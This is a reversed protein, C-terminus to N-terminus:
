FRIVDQGNFICLTPLLVVYFIDFFVTTLHISTSHRLVRNDPVFHNKGLKVCSGVSPFFHMVQEVAMDHLCCHGALLWPPKRCVQVCCLHLHLWHRRRGLLLRNFHNATSLRQKMRVNCLSGQILDSRLSRLLAKTRFLITFLVILEQM